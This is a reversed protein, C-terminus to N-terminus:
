LHIKPSRQPEFKVDNPQLYSYFAKAHREWFAENQDRWKVLFDLEYPTEAFNLIDEGFAPGFMTKHYFHSKVEAFLEDRTLAKYERLHIILYEECFNEHPLRKGNIYYYTWVDDVGFNYLIVAPGNISHAPGGVNGHRIELKGDCTIVNKGDRNLDCTGDSTFKIFSYHDHNIVTLWSDQTSRGIRSERKM